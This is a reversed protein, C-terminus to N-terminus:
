CPHHCHPAIRGDLAEQLDGMLQYNPKRYKMRTLRGMLLVQIMRESDAVVSVRSRSSNFAESCVVHWM